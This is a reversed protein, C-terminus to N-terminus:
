DGRQVIQGAPELALPQTNVVVYTAAVSAQAAVFATPPDPAASLPLETAASVMLAMMVLSAIVIVSLVRAVLEDAQRPKM